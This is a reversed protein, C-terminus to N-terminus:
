WGADDRMRKYTIQATCWVRTVQPPRTQNEPHIHHLMICWMPGLSQANGYTIIGTSVADTDVFGEKDMWAVNNVNDNTGNAAYAGRWRAYPAKITKRFVCKRQRTTQQTQFVGASTETNISVPDQMTRKRRVEMGTARTYNMDRIFEEGDDITYGKNGEPSWPSKKYIRDCAEWYGASDNTATLNNFTTLLIEVHWTISEVRMKEYKLSLNATWRLKDDMTHGTPDDAPNATGADYYAYHGQAGGSQMENVDLLFPFAMMYFANDTDGFSFRYAALEDHNTHVENSAKLKYSARAYVNTDAHRAGTKYPARYSRTNPGGPVGTFRM